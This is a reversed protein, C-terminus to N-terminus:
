HLQALRHDATQLLTLMQRATQRLTPEPHSALPTFHGLTEAPHDPRLHLLQAALEQIAPEPHRLYTLLVEAPLPEGEELSEALTEFLAQTAVTFTTM